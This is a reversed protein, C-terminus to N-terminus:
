MKMYIVNLFLNIENHLLMIFVHRYKGCNISEYTFDYTEASQEESYLRKWLNPVYFTTRRYTNESTKDLPKEFSNHLFLISLCPHKNRLRRTGCFSNCVEESFFRIVCFKILLINSVYTSIDNIWIFIIPFDNQSFIVKSIICYMIIM